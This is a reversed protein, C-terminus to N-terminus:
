ESFMYKIFMVSYTCYAGGACESSAEDSGDACNEYGDCVAAQPICVGSTLCQFECCQSEDFNDPCQSTGDCVWSM